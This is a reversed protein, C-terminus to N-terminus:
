RPTTQNATRNEYQLNYECLLMSTLDVLTHGRKARNAIGGAMFSPADRPSEPSSSLVMEGKTDEIIEAIRILQGIGLLGLQKNRIQFILRSRDNENGLWVKFANTAPFVKIHKMCSNRVSLDPSLTLAGCILLGTKTIKDIKRISISLDTEFVLEDGVKLDNM